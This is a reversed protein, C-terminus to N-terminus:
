SYTKPFNNQLMESPMPSAVSGDFIYPYILHKTVGTIKIEGINDVDVFSILSEKDVEDLFNNGEGIFVDNAGTRIGQYIGTFIKEFSLGLNVKTLIQDTLGTAFKWPHLDLSSTPIIETAGETLRSNEDLRNPYRTLQFDKLKNKKAFFIACTYTTHKPFIQLDGYDEVEILRAETAIKKCIAEGYKSKLIKNPVLFCAIGDDALVSIAQELFAVSLDANGQQYTPYLRKLNERYGPELKQARVYPPNALIVDYKQANESFLDSGSVGALLMDKETLRWEGGISLSLLKAYTLSKSDIDYGIKEIGGGFLEQSSFLFSGVGCSSDLLTKPLRGGRNIRLWHDKTKLVLHRSLWYPTFVVGKEKRDVENSDQYYLESFIDALSKQPVGLDSIVKYIDEDTFRKLSSGQKEGLFEKGIKIVESILNVKSKLAHRTYAACLIAKELPKINLEKM